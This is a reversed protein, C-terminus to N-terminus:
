SSCCAAKPRTRESMRSTTWFSCITATSSPSRAKSLWSAARETALERITSTYIVPIGFKAEIADLTGSVTTQGSDGSDLLRRLDPRLSPDMRVRQVEEVSERYTAEHARGHAAVLEVAWPPLFRASEACVLTADDVSLTGPITRNEACGGLFALQPVM